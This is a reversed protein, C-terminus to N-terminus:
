GAESQPCAGTRGYVADQYGYDCCGAAIKESIELAKIGNQAKGVVEFGLEPWSIRREIMDMVEEEDDVLLVKYILM